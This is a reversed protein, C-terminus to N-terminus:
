LNKRIYKAFAQMQLLNEYLNNRIIEQKLVITTALDLSYELHTFESKTQHNSISPFAIRSSM